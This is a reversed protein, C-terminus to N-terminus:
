KSKVYSPTIKISKANIENTVLKYRKNSILEGELDTFVRLDGKSIRQSESSYEVTVTIENPMDFNSISANDNNIINIENASFRFTDKLNNKKLLKVTINENDVSIGSPLSLKVTIGDTTIRDADIAKTNIYQISDLDEKKGKIKIKSPSIEYDVGEVLEENLNEFVPNIDVEKSNLFSVEAEIKSFELTINSVKKNNEDLPTLSLTETYPKSYKDDVVISAQVYKVQNVKSRPGSILIKEQKLAVDQVDDKYKGSINVSIDREEKVIKELNVVITSSKFDISVRDRSSARLYLQNQGEIPNTITGYIDINDENINQLNSLNGTVYVAAALEENPDIVLGLDKIENLNTITIPINEYLVTDEPDVVAMVYMWLVLASFLAILKIKTNEKLKEIM